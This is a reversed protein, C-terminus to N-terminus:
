KWLATGRQPLCNWATKTEYFNEKEIVLLDAGPKASEGPFAINACPGPGSCDSRRRAYCALRVRIGQRLESMRCLLRSSEREIGAVPRADLPFHDDPSFLRILKRSGLEVHPARKM